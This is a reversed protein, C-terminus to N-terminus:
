ELDTRQIRIRDHDIVIELDYPGLLDNIYKFPRGFPVRLPKETEITHYRQAEAFSERDVIEDGCIDVM